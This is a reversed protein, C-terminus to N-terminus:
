VYRQQGPEVLRLKVILGVAANQQERALAGHPRRSFSLSHSPHGPFRAALSDRVCHSAGGASSPSFVSSHLPGDGGGFEDCLRRQLSLESAPCPLQRRHVKRHENLSPLSRRHRARTGRTRSTSKMRCYITATPLLGQQEALPAAAAAQAAQLSTWPRKTLSTASFLKKARSRILPLLM